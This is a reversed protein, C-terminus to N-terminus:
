WSPPVLYERPGKRLVTVDIPEVINGEFLPSPPTQYQFADTMEIKQGAFDLPNIPHRVLGKFGKRISTIDMPELTVRQLTQKGGYTIIVNGPLPNQSLVAFRFTSGVSVFEKYHLITVETQFTKVSGAEWQRKGEEPFRLLQPAEPFPHFTQFQFDASLPVAPTCYIAAGKLNEMHDKEPDGHIGNVAFMLAWNHLVRGTRIVNGYENTRFSLQNEVHLEAEFGYM